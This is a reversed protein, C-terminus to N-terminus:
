PDRMPFCIGIRFGPFCVISLVFRHKYLSLLSSMQLLKIKIRFYPPHGWGRGNRKPFRNGIRLPVGWGEGGGTTLGGVLGGGGDGVTAVDRHVRFPGGTARHVIARPDLRQTQGARTTNTSEGRLIDTAVRVLM